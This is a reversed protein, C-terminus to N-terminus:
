SHTKPPIYNQLQSTDFRRSFTIGNKDTSNLDNLIWLAMMWGLVWKKLQQNKRLHTSAAFEEVLVFRGLGSDDTEM